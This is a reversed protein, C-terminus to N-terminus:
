DHVVLKLYIDNMNNYFLCTYFWEEANEIEIFRVENYRPYRNQENLFRDCVVLLARYNM